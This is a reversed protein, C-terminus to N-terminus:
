TFDELAESTTGGKLAEYTGHLKAYAKELLRSWFESQSASHMYLLEGDASPLRDDIVVDVWKGYHWFQFH